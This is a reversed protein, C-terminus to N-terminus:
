QGLLVSPELQFPHRRLGNDKKVQWALSQENMARFM